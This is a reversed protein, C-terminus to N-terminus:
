DWDPVEPMEVTRAIDLRASVGPVLVPVRVDVQVRHRDGNPFSAQADSRLWGPLAAQASAQVVGPDSEVMAVRAATRAAQETLVAAHALLLVQLVGMAVLLLIPTLGLLEVAAQGREDRHRRRM